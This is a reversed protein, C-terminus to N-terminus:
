NINVKIKKKTLDESKTDPEEVPVPKREIKAKPQSPQSFLDVKPTSPTSLEGFLDGSTIRKSPKIQDNLPQIDDEDDFLAKNIKPSKKVPESVRKPEDDGFLDVVNKQNSKKGFSDTSINKSSKSPKTFLDDEDFLGSNLGKKSSNM